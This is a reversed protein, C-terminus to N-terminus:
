QELKFFRRKGAKIILGATPEIQAKEDDVKELSEASAGVRVGGQAVLRRAQGNTEACGGLVLLKVIWIKGNELEGPQIRVIPMEDPLERERFIRDFEEAAQEAAEASHYRKVLAKALAVKAERPHASPALLSEIEEMTADTTMIFYKKMMADPISMAKGFIDKPSETIGIYNGLSKSMKHVGDLGELLPNTVAVQAAMGMDRQLERGVMLNFLQDTGGLEVDARVEVSDWGQMLPYLFEHVAIPEGAKYRKAFDDRELMRAVTMRACLRTVEGFSMKSFWDGNKVIEAKELDLIRGAQELYTQAHAMVADHTLQPRTKNQGSPDGVCATYDGLILVAQHGLDQFARLKWLPVANGIHIDPATPDLGLKVRLPRNENRSRTLKEVLEAEPVIDAVGRRIRALQEEVPPFSM